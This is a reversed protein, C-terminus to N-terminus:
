HSAEFYKGIARVLAPITAEDAEITPTLGLEVMARSTIPGISALLIGAPLQLGARDLLDMLNRATSASTFTIVTPFLEPVSFIKRILPISDPPMRNRYAEAITLYAGAETLAQPLIDRAQAARVLLVKQGAVLPALSGALAEAVYRSPQLAVPIGLKEVARGTAPGIVAVNKPCIAPHRRAAFVEVANASTFVVWEFASLEALAHDLSVFSDPPVIEITPIVEVSAGASCLYESLESAGAKTRTVLVRQNALPLREKLM